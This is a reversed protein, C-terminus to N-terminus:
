EMELESHWVVPLTYKIPQCIIALMVSWINWPLAHKKQKYRVQQEGNIREVVANTYNVLGNLLYSDNCRQM